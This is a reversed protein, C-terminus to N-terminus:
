WFANRKKQNEEGSLREINSRNRHERTEFENSKSTSLSLNVCVLHIHQQILWGILKLPDYPCRWVGTYRISLNITLFWAFSSRFYNLKSSWIALPKRVTCQVCVVCWVCVFNDAPFVPEICVIWSEINFISNGVFSATITMVRMKCFNLTAVFSCVWKVILAHFWYKRHANTNGNWELLINCLKIPKLNWFRNIHENLLTSSAVSRICIIFVYLDRVEMRGLANSSFWWKRNTNLTPKLASMKIWWECITQWTFASSVEFKFGASMSCYQISQLLFVKSGNM